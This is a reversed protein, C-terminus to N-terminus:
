LISPETAASETDPSIRIVTGGGPALKVTLKRSDPLLQLERVYDSAIRDANVGDRFIEAGYKGEPLFSLDLTITREEWNNLAGIYWKNGQRRAIVAFEGMQGDLAKTEDWVTPIATIFDTCEQEAKYASPSDCMMELPAEFVVYEALQHCRTGQSMPESDIARWNTMTANRMAGPTYDMPGSVMRIFPVTVDYTVMDANAAWKLNELGYVAEFNLVNPWTRNLGSPKPCGHFDIVLRYKAALEAARTQFKAMVQDDRNLFDIKFGKVGMESYHKCVEEMNNTFSSLGAWLIIRVNRENAYEVLEKLHIEPVVSLLDRKGRVSWGEDLIVYEINNDAAFDIYHKYTDDNVGSKFNVGKINWANWWEWAVKGPVVWNFADENAPATALTYVLDNDLLDKDEDAVIIIRWPFEVETSNYEAIYSKRSNVVIQHGNLGGVGSLDPYAAFYSDITNKDKSKKVFMGPYDLVDSETICIKTGKPSEVVVPLFAIRDKEMLSIPGSTYVNEFSNIAQEEPKGKVPSYAMTTKWDGPFVFSTNDAKVNFPKKSTAMGRWAIGSDYARFIITTNKCILTLENYNDRITNKKYLYSTIVEDATREETEKVKEKGITKGNSLSISVPSPALVQEGDHYISYTLPRSASVVLQTRGDPSKLSYTKANMTATSGLSLMLAM